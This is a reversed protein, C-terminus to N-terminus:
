LLSQSWGPILQPKTKEDWELNMLLPKLFYSTYIYNYIELWSITFINVDSYTTLKECYSTVPLCQHKTKLLTKQKCKVLGAGSFMHQLLHAVYGHVNM